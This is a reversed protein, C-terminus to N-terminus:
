NSLFILLIGALGLAQGVTWIAPGPPDFYDRAKWFPAAWAAWFSVAGKRFNLETLLTLLFGILLLVFGFTGTDMAIEGKVLKKRREM